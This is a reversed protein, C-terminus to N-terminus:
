GAGRSRYSYKCCTLTELPFTLVKGRGMSSAHFM